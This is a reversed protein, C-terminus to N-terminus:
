RSKSATQRQQLDGIDIRTPDFQWGGKQAPRITVRHLAEGIVTRRQDVSLADWAARLAGPKGAFTSLTSHRAQTNLRKRIHTRQEEIERQTLEFLRRSTKGKAFSKALDDDRRDLKALEKSMVSLDPSGESILDALRVTDVYSMTAEVVIPELQDARISVRGCNGKGPGYNTCRYIVVSRGARKGVSSRTMKEGCTGCYVLGTLMSRRKPLGSMHNRGRIVECIQDFRAREVLPKADKIEGVDAGKHVIRGAHRPM